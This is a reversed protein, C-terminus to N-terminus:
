QQVEMGLLKSPTMRSLIDTTRTVLDAVVPAVVTKAFNIHAAVAPVCVDVIDDLARNHLTGGELNPIQRDNVYLIGNIMADVNIRGPNDLDSATPGTEMLRNTTGVLEALPTNTMPTLSFRKADFRETLAVASELAERTLM